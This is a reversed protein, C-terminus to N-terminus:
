ITNETLVSWKASNQLCTYNNWMIIIIKLVKRKVLGTNNNNTTDSPLLVSQKIMLKRESHETEKRVRVLFWGEPIWSQVIIIM